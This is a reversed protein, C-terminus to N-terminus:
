FFSCIIQWVLKFIFISIIAGIFFLIFNFDGFEISSYFFDYVSEGIDIFFDSSSTFFDIFLDKVIVFFDSVLSFLFEPIDEIGDFIKELFADM